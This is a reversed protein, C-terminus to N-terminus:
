FPFSAPSHLLALAPHSTTTPPYMKIPHDMSGRLHSSIQASVLPFSFYTHGVSVPTGSPFGDLLNRSCKSYLGLEEGTPRDEGGEM